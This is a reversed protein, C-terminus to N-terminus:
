HSMHQQCQSQQEELQSSLWAAAQQLLSHGLLQVYLNSQSCLVSHKHAGASPSQVEQVLLQKTLCALQDHLSAAKAAVAHKQIPAQCQKMFCHHSTHAGNVLDNLKAVGAHLTVFTTM